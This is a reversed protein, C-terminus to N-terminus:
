DGEGDSPLRWSCCGQGAQKVDDLNIESTRDSTVYFLRGDRMMLVGLREWQTFGSRWNSQWQAVKRGTECDRAYIVRRGKTAEAQPADWVMGAEFVFDAFPQVFGRSVPPRPAESVWLVKGTACDVMAHQNEYPPAGISERTLVVYRGDPHWVSLWYFLDWTPDVEIPVPNGSAPVYTLGGEKGWMLVGAAEPAVDLRRADSSPRSIRTRGDPGSAVLQPERSGSESQLLLAVSGDFGVSQRAVKMGRLVGLDAVHRGEVFIAAGVESGGRVISKVFVRGDGSAVGGGTSEPSAIHWTNYLGHYALSDGRGSMLCTALHWDNPRLTDATAVLDGEPSYWSVRSTRKGAVRTVSYHVFPAIWTGESHAGTTSFPVLEVLRPPIAPSVAATLLLLLVGTVTVGVSLRM